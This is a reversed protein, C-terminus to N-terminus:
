LCPCILIGKARSGKAEDLEIQASLDLLSLNRLNSFSSPINGTFNNVISAPVSGIFKCYYLNLHTLSKLNDISNPLRGSFSTHSVDLIQLPNSRNAEPFSGKLEFNLSLDLVQLYPLLFLTSNSPITVTLSKASLHLGTVHGKGMDDCTVGNWSCCDTDEEWQEMYHDYYNSTYTFLQKFQLLLSAQDNSCLKSHTLSSHLLFLQLFVLQYCCRSLWGM